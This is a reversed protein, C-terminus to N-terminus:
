IKNDQDMLKEDEDEEEEEVFRVKDYSDDKKACHKYACFVNVFLCLLCPVFAVAVFYFLYPSYEGGSPGYVPMENSADGIFDYGIREFPNSMAAAAEDGM